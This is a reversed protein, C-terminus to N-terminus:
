PSSLDCILSNNIIGLSFLLFSFFFNLFLIEERELVDDDSEEKGKHNELKECKSRKREM